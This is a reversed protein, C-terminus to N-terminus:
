RGFPRVFLNLDHGDTESMSRRMGQRGPQSIPPRQAMRPVPEVFDTHRRPVMRPREERFGRLGTGTIELAPLGIAVPHPRAPQPRQMQPRPKRGHQASQPVEDLRLLLHYDDPGLERNELAEIETRSLVPPADIAKKPPHL